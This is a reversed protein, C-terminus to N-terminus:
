SVEFVDGKFHHVLQALFTLAGETLVEQAITPHLGGSDGDFEVQLIQITSYPNTLSRRSDYAPLMHRYLLMDADAVRPPTRM